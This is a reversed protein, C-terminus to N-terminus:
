VTIQEVVDHGVNGPLRQARPQGVLALQGYGFRHADQAVHAIREGVRVTVADHVAVHLGVVHQERPLVRQHRVEPHSFGDGLRRPLRRERRQAHREARRGVHRGLLGRRVWGRVVARVDVSDPREGVLHEGAARREDSGRGGHQGGVHGALGLGDGVVAVAGRGRQRCEHHAAQRFMRRVSELRCSVDQFRELLHHRGGAANGRCTRRRVVGRSDHRGRAGMGRPHRPQERERGDRHEAHHVEEHGLEAQRAPHQRDGGPQECDPERDHDGRPQDLPLPRQRARCAPEGRRGAPQAAPQRPTLCHGAAHRCERREAESGADVRRHAHEPDPRHSRQDRASHEPRPVAHYEGVEGVAGGVRREATRQTLREM